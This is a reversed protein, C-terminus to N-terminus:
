LLLSRLAAILAEVDDEPVLTLGDQGPLGCARTAIVPVGASLAALLKRPADELLAPQVVAAVGNLWNESDPRRTRVGRWFGAGELERGLLVIELDLARAAARLEYAGKRAITPGVFAVAHGRTGPSVTPTAWPVLVAREGFLAAIEAHPTVVADAAALAESEAAVLAPDARFDALTRREPHRTAAASLRREIEAMPMRTMLVRFRRGGLYGGLWLHPLLSQAVVVDTVDPTLARAAARAMAAAGAIEAARREPADKARRLAFSRRLATLTAAEVRTFGVTPWAYRAAKWRAGDLPLALVDGDRRARAVFARHEPWNEDVVFATRGVPARTSEHRFCQTQECTGCSEVEGGGPPSTSVQPAFKPHPVAPASLGLTGAERRALLRVVLEDREVVVRLMMARPAVFRLDVYNWAVTADRGAMAASGPVRRSHAHREVVDCGADLAMAYLANSLQCLGGGTAPVLCGEQLMRGSVFGRSASARGLQRWFSFVAGAPLVTRDLRRAAARLNHVKGWQMAREGARPDSWLPSRAEAVVVVFGSPDGRALLRPRRGFERGFRITRFVNTKLQFLFADLRGPVAREPM